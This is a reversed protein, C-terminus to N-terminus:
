HNLNPNVDIIDLVKELSKKYEFQEEVKKRGQNGMQKILEKNNNLLLIKEVFSNLIFPEILYGTENNSIIEPNSSVNFAIIPKSCAMAEIIVYGFGEWLSTLVFIDITEMFSKIDNIFGKVVM